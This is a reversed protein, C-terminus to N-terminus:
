RRRPATAKERRLELRYAITFIVAGIAITAISAMFRTWFGVSLGALLPYLAFSLFAIGGGIDTVVSKGEARDATVMPITTVAVGLTWCGAFVFRAINPEHEFLSIYLSALIGLASIVAGPGTGDDRRGQHKSIM